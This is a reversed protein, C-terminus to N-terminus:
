RVFKRLLIKKELLHKVKSLCDDFKRYLISRSNEFPIELRSGSSLGGPVMSMSARHRRSTSTELQKMIVTWGNPHFRTHGRTDVRVHKSCTSTPALAFDVVSMLLACTCM